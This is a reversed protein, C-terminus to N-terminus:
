FDDSFPEPALKNLEKADHLENTKVIKMLGFHRQDDFVLREDKDFHFVAHTFKPNEQEASLVSFRGSMRLHVLLTQGDNLMFLLHKGRRGVNEIKRKSLHKAFIEPATEPALRPRLLHASEIFRSKVHSNLWRAVAEVEPLEPM